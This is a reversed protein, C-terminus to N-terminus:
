RRGYKVALVRDELWAALAEVQDTAALLKDRSVHISPSFWEALPNDVSVLYRESDRVFFPSPFRSRTKLDHRTEMTAIHDPHQAANRALTIQELLDFDAPCESWTVGLLEGFCRQYARVFGDKFYQKREGEDWKVRLESEWTRFYLKLAESLMSVCTQGVIQLATTAESWESMFPPEGDESYGPVFPAEGAEIKRITERFPEGATEYFLKIFRTREKLFFLVDM